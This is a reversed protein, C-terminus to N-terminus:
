WVCQMCCWCAHSGGHLELCDAPYEVGCLWSLRRGVCGKTCDCLCLLIHCCLWCRSFDQLVHKRRIGLAWDVECLLTWIGFARCPWARLCRFVYRPSHREGVKCPDIESSDARDQHERGARRIIVLNTHPLFLIRCRRPGMAIFWQGNYGNCFRACWYLSASM